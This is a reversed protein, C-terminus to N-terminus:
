EKDETIVYFVLADAKKLRLENPVTYIHDIREDPHEKKFKEISKEFIELGLHQQM